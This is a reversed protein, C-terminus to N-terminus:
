EKSHYCTCVFQNFNPFARDCDIWCNDVCLAVLKMIHKQTCKLDYCLRAVHDSACLYNQM